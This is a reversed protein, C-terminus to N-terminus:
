SGIGTTMDYNVRDPSGDENTVKSDLNLFEFATFNLSLSETPRDGGSSVSYGSLLVNELTYEIYAIQTKDTGTRTFHVKTKKGKGWLAARLLNSSSEDSTKSVVVESVSAESSERDSASSKPSGIGRGVGWQFSNVEIWDKHTAETVDGKIGDIQMYIAM